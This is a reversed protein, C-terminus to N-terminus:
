LQITPRPGNLCQCTSPLNRVMCPPGCWGGGTSPTAVTLLPKGLSDGALPRSAWHIQREEAVEDEESCSLEELLDDFGMNIQTHVPEDFVSKTKAYAWSVKYRGTNRNRLSTAPPDNMDSASERGFYAGPRQRNVGYESGHAKGVLGDPGEGDLPSTDGAIARGPLGAAQCGPSDDPGVLDDVYADDDEDDSTEPTRSLARQHRASPLPPRGPDVSAGPRRCDAVNITDHRPHWSRPGKGPGRASLSGGQALSMRAAFPLSTGNAEPTFDLPSLEARLRPTYVIRQSSIESRPTPMPRPTTLPTRVLLEIDAMSLAVRAMNGSETRPGRDTAAGSLLPSATVKSMDLKIPTVFPSTGAGRPTPQPRPTMTVLPVKPVPSVPQRRPSVPPTTPRATCRAAPREYECTKMVEPADEERMDQRFLQHSDAGTSLSSSSSTSHFSSFSGASPLRHLWDGNDDGSDDFLVKPLPAGPVRDCPVADCESCDDDDDVLWTAAAWPSPETTEGGNGGSVVNGAWRM